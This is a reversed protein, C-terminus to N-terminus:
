LWIQLRVKPVPSTDKPNCNWYSKQQKVMKRKSVRMNKSPLRDAGCINHTSGSKFRSKNVIEWLLRIMAGPFPDYEIPVIHWSSLLIEISVDKLPGNSGV